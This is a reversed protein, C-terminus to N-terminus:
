EQSDDNVSTDVFRWGKPYGLEVDNDETLIDDKHDSNTLKAIMVDYHSMNDESPLKCPYHVNVGAFSWHM